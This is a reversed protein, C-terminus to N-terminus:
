YNSLLFPENKADILAPISELAKPLGTATAVTAVL